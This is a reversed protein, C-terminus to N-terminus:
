GPFLFVGARKLRPAGLDQGPLRRTSVVSPMLPAQWDGLV